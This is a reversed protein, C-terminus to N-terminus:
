PTQPSHHVKPNEPTRQPETQMPTVLTWLVQAECTYGLGWEVGGGRGGWEERERRGTGRGLSDVSLRSRKRTEESTFVRVTPWSPQVHQLPEDGCPASMTAVRAASRRQLGRWHGDGRHQDHQPRLPYSAPPCQALTM